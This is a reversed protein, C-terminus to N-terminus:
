WYPSRLPQSLAVLRPMCFVTGAHGWFLSWREPSGNEEVKFSPNPGPRICFLLHTGDGRKLESRNNTITLHMTNLIIRLSAGSFLAANKWTKWFCSTAWMDAEEQQQLLNGISQPKFFLGFKNEWPQPPWFVLIIKVPSVDLFRFPQNRRSAELVFNRGKGKAAAPHKKAQSRKGWRWIM